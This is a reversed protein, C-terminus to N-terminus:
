ATVPSAVDSSSKVAHRHRRAVGEVADMARRPATVLPRHPLAGRDVELGDKYVASISRLNRVDALPDADLVVVDALKGAEITGIRDIKGYARAVNSTCALIVDMPRMGKEVIGEAWLFHDEGLTWPRGDVGGPPLDALVDQSTCGADTGLLIRAGAEILLRENRAHQGGGYFAWPNGSSELHKQYADTVTQMGCGLGKKGIADILESPIPKQGTITAHILVDADLDVAIQLAELGLTHTLLPVGAARTEEAIVRLVRESFTLYTRDWGVTMILHDSVAVKLMDVGRQLYDRIIPRVESPPLHSLQHGVGAEFLRDMRNAFTTSICRRAAPHFDASFPGGMGVINGACFVRAGAAKGADIRDRAVLVPELANWTDFVTTVGSRLAVQAAEEIVSHFQGEYRSLYEIGGIGMMMIGDLLHVNANVLGPILWQGRADVVVADDPIEISGTEGVAIFVGGQMLVTANKRPAGGLGDIVTAPTIAIASGM